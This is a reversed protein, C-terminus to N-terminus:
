PGPQNRRASLPNPCRRSRISQRRNSAVSSSPETPQNNARETAPIDILSVLITKSFGPAVEYTLTNKTLTFEDPIESRLGSRFVLTYASAAVAFALLLVVAMTSRLLVTRTRTANRSVGNKSM